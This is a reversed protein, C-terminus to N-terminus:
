ELFNDNVEVYNGFASFPDEEIPELDGTRPNEDYKTYDIKKEYKTTPIANTIVFKPKVTGDKATFCSLFGDVEYLGYELDNGRPIQLSMYMESKQNNYENSLKTYYGNGDKNKSIVIKM